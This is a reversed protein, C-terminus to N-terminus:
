RQREALKKQILYTKSGIFNSVDLNLGLKIKISKKTKLKKKQM